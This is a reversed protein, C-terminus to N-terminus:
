GMRDLWDVTGGHQAEVPSSLTRQSRHPVSINRMCATHRQGAQRNLVSQQPHHCSISCASHRISFHAEVEANWEVNLM